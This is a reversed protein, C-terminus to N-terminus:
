GMIDRVGDGVGDAVDSAAEGVGDVVDGVADGADSVGDKIDDGINNNKMTTTTTSSTDPMTSTDSVKGDDANGCGVLFLCLLAAVMVMVIATKKM